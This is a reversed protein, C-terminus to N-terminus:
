RRASWRRGSRRASRCCPLARRGPAPRTLGFPRRTPRRAVRPAPRMASRYAAPTKRVHCRGPNRVTLIGPSVTGSSWPRGIACAPEIARVSAGRGAPVHPWSPSCAASSSTPRLHAGVSDGGLPTHAPAHSRPQRVQRSRRSRRHRRRLRRRRRRPARARQGRARSHGSSRGHGGGSTAAASAPATSQPSTWCATTGSAAISSGCGRWMRMVCTPYWTSGPNKPSGAQAAPWCRLSRSPLLSVSADAAGELRSDTHWRKGADAADTM